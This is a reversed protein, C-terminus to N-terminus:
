NAIVLIVLAGVVVVTVVIALITIIFDVRKQTRFIKVALWYFCIGIIGGCTNTILDTIDTRGVALIYQFVELALSAAFVLLVKVKFSMRFKIMSLYIGLPIFIAVNELVEKLHFAIGIENNYYFPILNIVRFTELESFSFQMKFLIIWVLLVMYIVFLIPVLCNTKERQKKRM